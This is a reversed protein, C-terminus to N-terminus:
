DPTLETATTFGAVGEEPVATKTTVGKESVM